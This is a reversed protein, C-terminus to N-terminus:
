LAGKFKLLQWIGVLAACIILVWEHPEPVAGSSRTTANRLSHENEKIHHRDYDAQTELVILSSIPSVVYAANALDILEGESYDSATFYDEGISRLILNYHHLRMLHDPASTSAQAATSDCSIAFGSTGIEVENAKLDNSPFTGNQLHKNLEIISMPYVDIEDFQSLTQHFPSSMEALEVVRTKAHNKAMYSKMKHHFISGELDSLNPTTSSSKSVILVNSNTSLLHYPFLSFQKISEAAYVDTLHNPDIRNLGDSFHWFEVSPNNEVLAEVERYSWNTNLDLYVRDFTHQNAENTLQRAQYQQGEFVFSKPTFDAKPLELSWTSEYDGTRQYQNMKIYKFDSPLQPEVPSSSEIKVVTTEFARHFAPGNFYINDLVLQDDETNLPVTVGLKFQRMEKPSCPFVTVTVRNGEQWHLLAPDRRQRGVINVYASDAKGKTTLRSKEEVGNVWLSLSTAVAGEPLYFTYLAEQEPQWRRQTSNQIRITKEVYATAYEPFLQVETLVDFTSLNSGSWLKRHSQHRGDFRSNLIRTRDDVSLEIEGYFFIGFAVLPDYVKSSENWGRTVDGNSNFESFVQSGMLMREAIWDNSWIQSLEAWKPLDNDEQLIQRAHVEHILERTGGWQMVFVVIVVATLGLGSFFSIKALKSTFSKRVEYVFSLLVLLPVFAHLSIGFFISAILAMPLMVMVHMLQAFSMWIVVGMVFALGNVVM